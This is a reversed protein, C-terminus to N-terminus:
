FSDEWGHELVIDWVTEAIIRHGLTNPHVGDGGVCPEGAEDFKTAFKAVECKFGNFDKQAKKCMEVLEQNAIDTSEALYSFRGPLHHYELYIVRKVGADNLSKLVTYIHDLINQHLQDCEESFPDRCTDPNAAIIDNGGGNSVVLSPVDDGNL